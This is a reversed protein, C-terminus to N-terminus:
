QSEREDDPLGFKHSDLENFITGIALRYKRIENALEPYGGEKLNREKEGLYDACAILDQGTDWKKMKHHKM